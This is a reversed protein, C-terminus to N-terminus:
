GAELQDDPYRPPSWESSHQLRPAIHFNQSLSLRGLCFVRPLGYPISPSQTFCRKISCAGIALIELVYRDYEMYTYVLSHNCRLM